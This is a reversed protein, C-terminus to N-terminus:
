WLKDDSWQTTNERDVRVARLLYRMWIRLGLLFERYKSTGDFSQSIASQVLHMVCYEVGWDRPLPECVLPWTVCAANVSEM